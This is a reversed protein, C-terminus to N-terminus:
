FYSFLNFNPHFVVPRAYGLLQFSFDELGKEGGFRGPLAGSQAQTQRKIHNGLPVASFQFYFTFCTLTAEKFNYQLFLIFGNM